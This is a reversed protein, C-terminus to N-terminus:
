THEEQHPTDINVRHLWSERWYPYIQRCCFWRRMMNNGTDVVGELTVPERKLQIMKGNRDDIFRKIRQKVRYTGGSYALMERDFWLGKTSGRENLTEIIEEKSKIKVWDGPQLNLEDEPTSGKCKGKLFVHPFFGLKRLPEMYLAKLSIRLFHSFSVNGCTFERVYPIPDLLHLQISANFLETAQCRYVEEEKGDINKIKKIYRTIIDNLKASSNENETSIPTTKEKSQVRRLWSEKWFIRCDAQCGDHASGDCRLDELLVTNPLKRSGSYFITDGIKEARKDVVYRQGCYQIMEPMFPLKELLGDNDLTNLIEVASKVEVLDGRRLARSM